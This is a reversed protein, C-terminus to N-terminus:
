LTFGYFLEMEHASGILGGLQLLCVEDDAESFMAYQVRGAEKPTKFSLVM